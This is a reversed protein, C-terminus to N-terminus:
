MLVLLLIVAALTSFFIHKLDTRFRKLALSIQTEVTRKSIGLHSAIEDNSMGEFRSLSFILRCQPHLKSVAKEIRQKIEELDSSPESNLDTVDPKLLLVEEKEKKLRQLETLARNRSMQILYGEMSEIRDWQSQKDWLKLFVDQSVDEAM